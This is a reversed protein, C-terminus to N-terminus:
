ALVEVRYSNITEFRAPDRISVLLGEMGKTKGRQMYKM